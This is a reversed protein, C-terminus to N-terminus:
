ISEGYWAIGENIWHASANLIEQEVQSTSYLHSGANSLYRVVPISGQPPEATSYVQYAVGEYTFSSDQSLINKEEINATYFHGGSAMMFRHLDTTANSPSAYAAGENVWGQGTIIDIETSNASFIFRNTLNNRLRYIYGDTFEISGPTNNTTEDPAYISSKFITDINEIFVIGGSTAIALRGNSDVEMDLLTLGSTNQVVASKVAQNSRDILYLNIDGDPSHVYSISHGGALYYQSNVPVVSGISNSSNGLGLGPTGLRFYQYSNGAVGLAPKYEGTLGYVMSMSSTHYAYGGFIISNLRADFELSNIGFTDVPAPPTLVFNSDKIWGASPKNLDFSYLNVASRQRTTDWGMAYLINNIPDYATEHALLNDSGIVSGNRRVVAEYDEIGDFLTVIDIFAGASHFGGQISTVGARPTSPSRIATSSDLIQLHNVSLSNSDILYWKKLSLGDMSLMNSSYWQGQIPSEEIQTSRWDRLNSTGSINWDQSGDLHISELFVQGISNDSGAAYIKDGARNFDVDYVSCNPRYIWSYQAKISSSIVGGDTIKTM